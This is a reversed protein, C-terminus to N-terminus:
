IAGVWRWYLYAWPVGAVLLAAWGWRVFLRDSWAERGRPRAVIVAVGAWYGAFCLTCARALVGGDLVLGALVWVIGQVALLDLSLGLQDASVAADPGTAPPAEAM